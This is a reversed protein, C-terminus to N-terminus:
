VLESPYLFVFSKKLFFFYILVGIIVNSVKLPRALSAPKSLDGQLSLTKCLKPDTM